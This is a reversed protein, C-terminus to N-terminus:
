FATLTSVFRDGTKIRFQCGGVAISTANVAINWHEAAGATEAALRSVAYGDFSPYWTGGGSFHARRAATDLVATPTAVPDPHAAGNTGDRQHTGGAATTVGHGRTLVVGNQLGPCRSALCM